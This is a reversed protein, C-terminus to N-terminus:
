RQGATAKGQQGPNRRSTLEAAAQMRVMAMEDSALWALIEKPTAPGILGHRVEDEPDSKLATWAQTVYKSAPQAHDALENALALRVVVAPNSTLTEWCRDCRDGRRGVRRRCMRWGKPPSADPDSIAPTWSNCRPM